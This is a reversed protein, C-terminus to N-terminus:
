FTNFMRGMKQINKEKKVRNTKTIQDKKSQINGKKKQQFIAGKDEHKLITGSVCYECTFVFFACAETFRHQM